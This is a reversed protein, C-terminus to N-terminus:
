EGKIVEKAYNIYGKLNIDSPCIYSCLGCEICKDISLNKIIEKNDICRMIFVPVLNIPCVNNCKGCSICKKEKIIKNKTIFIANVDKTIVTDINSIQKGTLPGGITVCFDNSLNQIGYYNIIDSVLTGIKVEVVKNFGLNSGITIIKENRPYNNKLVNWVDNLSLLDLIYINKELATNRYIVNFLERILVMDNGVPYYNDVKVIKIKPYTGIYHYLNNYLPNDVIVLIARPLDLKIRINDVMELIKSAKENVFCRKSFVYPEIDIANIVFYKINYEEYCDILKNMKLNYTFQDKSYDLRKKRRMKEKYDNEIVICKVLGKNLIYKYVHNRIYGSVSSYVNNNNKKIIIDGKYVYDGINFLIDGELEMYIYEPKLYLNLSESTFVDKIYVKEM